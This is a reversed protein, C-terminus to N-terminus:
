KAVESNKQSRPAVLAFFAVAGGIAVLAMMFGFFNWRLQGAVALVQTEAAEPKFGLSFIVPLLVLLLNSFSTWFQAREDTGCLDTLVRKLAPRLYATLLLCAALTVALQIFFLTVTNM